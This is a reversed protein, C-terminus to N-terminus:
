TKQNAIRLFYSSAPTEPFKPRLLFDNAGIGVRALRWALDLTGIGWAVDAGQQLDSRSPDEGADDGVSLRPRATELTDGAM